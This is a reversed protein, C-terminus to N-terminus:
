PLASKKKARSKANKIEAALAERVALHFAAATYWTAAERYNKTSAYQKALRIAAREAQRRLKIKRQIKNM